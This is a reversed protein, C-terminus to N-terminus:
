MFFNTGLSLLANALTECHALPSLVHGRHVNEGWELIRTSKQIIVAKHTNIKDGVLNCARLLRSSSNTEGRCIKTSLEVVPSKTSM